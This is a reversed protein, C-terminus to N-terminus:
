GWSKVEEKLRRVRDEDTDVVYLRVIRCTKGAIGHLLSGPDDVLIIPESGDDPILRILEDWEATPQKDSDQPRITSGRKEFTLSKPEAILFQGTPLNFTSSLAPLRARIAALFAECANHKQADRNTREFIAVAERLLSPPHRYVIAHALSRIIQDDAALARQAVSDLFSDTFEYLGARNKAIQRVAAGNAPLGYKEADIDRCRRILHRFAEEFGFTTKHYYVTRQMFYRALLFHEAALRAKPDIGIVGQPNAKVNQLIYNIDIRGYPVGAARADRPLYDLRDIDLSSHLLKSLQPDAVRDRRFLAAIREARDIGGIADRIDAQETVIIKGLEEHDPYQETAELRLTRPNAALYEEPLRVADVLEMLHSYPYHGIDHLLAALRLDKVQQEKLPLKNKAIDLIRCMVAFVGLSHAFRTHTANPYVLYGLGLQKLQRLRQFSATDIVRWEDAHPKITGHIPDVVGRNSEPNDSSAINRSASLHM